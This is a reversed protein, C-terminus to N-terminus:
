KTAQALTWTVAGSCGATNCPPFVENHSLSIQKVHHNNCTGNYIGSAQCKEGTRPM